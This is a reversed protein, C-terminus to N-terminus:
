QEDQKERDSLNIATENDLRPHLSQSPLSHRLSFLYFIKRPQPDCLDVFDLDLNGNIEFFDEDEIPNVPEGVRRSEADAGMVNIACQWVNKYLVGSVAM